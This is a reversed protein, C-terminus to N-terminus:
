AHVGLGAASAAVVAAETAEARDFLATLRGASMVAIRDSLAMVEDLDSTAFLIALGEAALRRMIAFLEAKAGVDIGRSPEDLLLVKPGTMLAKGIVVKQQNGGSLAGVEIAPDAVKIGLDRIAGDVAAAEAAAPVHVLRALRGLSALTLNQAVPLALVLGDRQRDEPVLAIGRAIRGAADRARVPADDLLVRGGAHPHLGLICEFLETRGAGMLGYLGLVEGARVALSVHDVLWGGAPRPLAVAELRLREPGLAHAIPRAFDKAASGIMRAVIWPVDVEAMAARGTVRGDRLVTIRDGIRVLEALRHSIYVIAVGQARLEAILRFLVEVEAASLASTPEDLILIRVDAAVAKAIEVIQREGISLDEVLAAPDIGAELRALLGRAEAEQRGRDIGLPGVIERAAFINEAVSLNPFLNLEQFVMAIGHRAAEAPSGLVVPRGDILIRGETPQEVGAIIKMLTSKGAGNEGVLVNVAGAQVDFDAHRVAVTGAYVKSIGELRLVPAAM